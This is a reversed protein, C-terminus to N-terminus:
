YRWWLDLVPWVNARLLDIDGDDDLVIPFEGYALGVAARMNEWAHAYMVMATPSVLEGKGFSFMTGGQALIMNSSGMLFSASGGFSINQDDPDLHQRYGTQATLLVHRGLDFTVSTGASIRGRPRPDHGKGAGELGFERAGEFTLALTMYHNQWAKWRVGGNPTLLLWLIPHVSITVTDTAGYIIPSFVGISFEGAELTFATSHVLSRSGDWRAQAPISALLLVAIAMSCIGNKNM